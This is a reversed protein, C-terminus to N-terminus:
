RCGRGPNPVNPDTEGPDVVCNRDADEVADPLGDGDSDMLMGVQEYRLSGVPAAASERGGAVASVLFTYGGCVPLGSVTAVLTGDAESPPIGVDIAARVGGDEWVHVRYGTVGVDRSPRFRVQVDYVGGHAVAAQAAIGVAAGWVGRARGRGGARGARFM